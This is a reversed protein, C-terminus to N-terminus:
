SDYHLYRFHLIDSICAIQYAGWLTIVFPRSSSGPSDNVFRCGLHRTQIKVAHVQLLVLAITKPYPHPPTKM